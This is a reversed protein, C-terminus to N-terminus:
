FKKPIKLSFFLKQNKMDAGGKIIEGLLEKDIAMKECMQNYIHISTSCLEKHDPLKVYMHCYFLM